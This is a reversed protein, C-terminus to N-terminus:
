VVFVIHSRNTSGLNEFYHVRSTNCLYASGDASLHYKNGEIIMNSGVNTFIPVHIRCDRPGDIHPKHIHGPTAMLIRGHYLPMVSLSEFLMHLKKGVINTKNYDLSSLSRKKVIEGSPLIFNSQNVSDYIPNNEDSYQLGIGFYSSYQDKVIPPIESFIESVLNQLQQISFKFNIKLIDFDLAMRRTVVQEVPISDLTKIM